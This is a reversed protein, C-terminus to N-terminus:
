ESLGSGVPKVEMHQLGPCVPMLGFTRMGLKYPLHTLFTTRLALSNDSCPDASYSQVEGFWESKQWNRDSFGLADHSQVDVGWLGLGM